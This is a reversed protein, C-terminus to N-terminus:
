FRLVVNKFVIPDLIKVEVEYTEVVVLRLHQHVLFHASVSLIPGLLLLGLGFLLCVVLGLLGLITRLALLM